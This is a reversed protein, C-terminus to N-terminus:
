NLNGTFEYKKAKSKAVTTNDRDIANSGVNDGSTESLYATWLGLSSDDPAWNRWVVPCEPEPSIPSV